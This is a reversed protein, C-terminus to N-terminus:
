RINCKSKSENVSLIAQGVLLGSVLLDEETDNINFTVEPKYTIPTCNKKRSHVHQSYIKLVLLCPAAPSARFSINKSDNQILTLSTDWKIVVGENSCNAYNITFVFAALLFIIVRVAM